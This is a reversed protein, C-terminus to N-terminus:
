GIYAGKKELKRNKYFDDRFKKLAKKNKKSAKLAERVSQDTSSAFADEFNKFSAM